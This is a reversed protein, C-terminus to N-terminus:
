KMEVYKKIGLEEALERPFVAYYKTPKEIVGWKKKYPQDGIELDYYKVGENIAREIDKKLLFVPTSLSSYKRNWWCGLYYVCDKDKMGIHVAILEGDLYASLTYCREKWIKMRRSFDRKGEGFAELFWGKSKELADEEDYVIRVAANKKEVRVLDKRLSKDLKLKEFSSPLEIINTFEEKVESEFGVLCDPHIEALYFPRPLDKLDKKDIWGYPFFSIDKWTWYFNDKDVKVKEYEM